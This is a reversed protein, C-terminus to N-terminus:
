QAGSAVKTASITNLTSFLKLVLKKHAVSRHPKDECVEIKAIKPLIGHKESRLLFFHNFGEIDREIGMNFTTLPEVFDRYQLKTPDTRTWISRILVSLEDSYVKSVQLPATEPM